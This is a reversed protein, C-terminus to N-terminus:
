NLIQAKFVLRNTWKGGYSYTVNLDNDRTNHINSEANNVNVWVAYQNTSGGTAFATWTGSGNPITFNWEYIGNDKYIMLGAIDDVTFDDAQPYTSYGGVPITTDTVVANYSYASASTLNGSADKRQLLMTYSGDCNQTITATSYSDYVANTGINM